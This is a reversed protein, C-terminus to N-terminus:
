GKSPNKIRYIKPTVGYEKKFLRSFYSYDEYGMEHAIQNIPKQTNALQKQAYLLKKNIIYKKLTIGTKEKFVRSVYSAGFHLYDAIENLSINKHYNNEIYIKAMKVLKEQSTLKGELVKETLQDIVKFLWGKLDESSSSSTIKEMYDINLLAMKNLGAGGAIAARYLVVFLELACVKLMDESLRYKNIDNWLFSLIQKAEENNGLCIYEQLKQENVFPYEAVDQSVFKLDEYHLLKKEGGFAARRQAALAELYSQRIEVATNYLNGMGITVDINFDTKLRNAVEVAKDTIYKKFDRENRHGKGLIAVINELSNPVILTSSEKGVIERISTLLKEKFHEYQLKTYNKTIKNFKEINVLMVGASFLNLGLLESKTIIEQESYIIGNILDQVFSTKVHPWLKALKQQVIINEQLKENEEKMKTLTTNICELLDNSRIPKLLYDSAGVKIATQAYDFVEFASLFIIKTQPLEKKIEKCAELGSKEPMRIDMLVINPKFTRAIEVAECGNRGEKVEQFLPFHCMITQRIAFRELPEDDVILLKYM